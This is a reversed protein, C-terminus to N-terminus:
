LDRRSIRRKMFRFLPSLGFGNIGLKIDISRFYFLMMKLLRAFSKDLEFHLRETVYLLYYKDCAELSVGNKGLFSMYFTFINTRESLEEKTLRTSIGYEAYYISGYSPIYYFHDAFLELQSDQAEEVVHSRGISVPIYSNLISRSFCASRDNLLGRIKLKLPSYGRNICSNNFLIQTGDPYISLVDGVVCIKESVWDISNEVLFNVVNAFFGAPCEDDGAIRYVFDGTPMKWTEEENAFIGINQLNRNLKFVGPHRESYDQLIAWTRDTSCDDSVCIEYLFEQELLSDLTRSIVDEQNYTIVIASFRPNM